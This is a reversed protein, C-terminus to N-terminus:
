SSAYRLRDSAWGMLIPFVTGGDYLSKFYPSAFDDRTIYGEIKADSDSLNLIAKVGAAEMLTDVYPARKHQNDCPSASRYFFNDKLRGLNMPRFNAFIIDSDFKTREDSYQIDRAEQVDLYKGRERLTISAKDHEKLAASKWLNKIEQQETNSMGFGHQLNATEWLDDGYNVAAKIYDYGPYAILLPQGADVYYGNYYPIDELTYGNTFTVDVSDGYKFGLKNFDDIGIEIYVGGFEKEHIIPYDKVEATEDGPVPTEDPESSKEQCGFLVAALSVATLIRITKKM